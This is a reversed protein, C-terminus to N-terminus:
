GGLQAAASAIVSSAFADEAAAAAAALISVGVENEDEEEEDEVNKAQESADADLVAAIVILQLAVVRSRWDTSVEANRNRQQAPETAVRSCSSSMPTMAGKLLCTPTEPNELGPQFDQTSALLINEPIGHKLL